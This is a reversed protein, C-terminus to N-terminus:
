KATQGSISHGLLFDTSFMRKKGALQLEVIRLWGDACCIHLGTGDTRLSGLTGSSTLPSHEASFIKLGTENVGDTLFTYATPYPSLGRILNFVSIASHTWDIRCNEKFIKPAEKLEVDVAPQPTSPATGNEIAILTREVLKAGVGMLKDHLEGATEEPGIKVKEQFILNGTDIEHKLLFTTVGTETEGNIVAWNIPAAGRYHPLLSAHLNFTGKEPMNWVSEPLMRFAVVVQLTAGLLRLEKLFEESKLNTPQLVHLGNEVAFQKVASPQLKMGRGAPRDPATVVGVVNFGGKIMARLSAVAFEPTGMFVIRDKSMFEHM